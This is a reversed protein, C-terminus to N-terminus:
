CSSPQLAIFNVSLKHTHHLYSGPTIGTYKKFEKILHSQDAYGAGYGIATLNEDPASNLCRIFYHLRIINSFNKPTSGIFQIFARETHRETYGTFKELQQSCVMGRNGTIFKVSAEILAHQGYMKQTILETFFTNLLSLKENVVTQGYINQVLAQVRTGLLDALSIVEDRLDAAPIGTLSGLGWPQFVAVLLATNGAAYLDRFRSLPGYLFSEPLYEPEADKGFGAILKNHFSFVMGTNGDSFLRLKSIGHGNNELFLYHKIFPLM